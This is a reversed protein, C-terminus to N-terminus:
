LKAAVCIEALIFSIRSELPVFVCPKFRLGTTLVVSDARPMQLGM